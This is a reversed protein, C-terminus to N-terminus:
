AVSATERAALWRDLTEVRVLRRRGILLSPLEGSLVYPYLFARSVGAREAAEEVSLALRADDHESLFERIADTALKRLEDDM